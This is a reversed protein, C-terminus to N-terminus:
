VLSVLFLCLLRYLRSHVDPISRNTYRTCQVLVEGRDLEDLQKELRAAICVFEFVRMYASWGFAIDLTNREWDRTPFDWLDSKWVFDDSKWAKVDGSLM